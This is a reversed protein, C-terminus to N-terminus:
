ANVSHTKIRMHSSSFSVCTNQIYQGKTINCIYLTCCVVTRIIIFLLRSLCFRKFACRNMTCSDNRKHEDSFDMECVRACVYVCLIMHSIHAANVENAPSYWNMRKQQALLFIKHILILMDWLFCLIPTTTTTMNHSNGFHIVWVNYVNDFFFFGNYAM